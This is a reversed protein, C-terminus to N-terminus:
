GFARLHPRCFWEVNQKRRDPARAVHMGDDRESQGELCAPVRCGNHRIGEKLIEDLRLRQPEKRNAGDLLRLGDDGIGVQPVRAFSEFDDRPPRHQRGHGLDVPVDLPMRARYPQRRMRCQM